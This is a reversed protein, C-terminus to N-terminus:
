RFAVSDNGFLVRRVTALPIARRSVGRLFIMGEAVWLECALEGAWVDVAFVDGPGLGDPVVVKITRKGDATCRVLRDVGLEDPVVVEVPQCLAITSGWRDAHRRRPIGVAPTGSRPFYQTVPTLAHMQRLRAHQRRGRRAGRIKRVLSRKTDLDYTTHIPSSSDLEGLASGNREATPLSGTYINERVRVAEVFRMEAIRIAEAANSSTFTDQPQAACAGVWVALANSLRQTHFKVLAGCTIDRHRSLRSCESKWIRLSSVLLLHLRHAVAKLGIQETRIAIATHKMWWKLTRSLSSRLMRQLLRQGATHLRQQEGHRLQEQLAAIKAQLLRSEGRVSSCEGQVAELRQLDAWRHAQLADLEQLDV